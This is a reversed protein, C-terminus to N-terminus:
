PVIGRRHWDREQLSLHLEEQVLRQLLHVCVVGARLKATDRVCMDRVQENSRM